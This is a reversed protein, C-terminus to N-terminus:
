TDVVLVHDDELEDVDVAVKVKQTLLKPLLCKTFFKTLGLLWGNLFDHDYAVRVSDKLTWCFIVIPNIGFVGSNSLLIWTTYGGGM